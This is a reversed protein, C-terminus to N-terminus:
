EANTTPTHMESMKVFQLVHWVYQSRHLIDEWWQPGEGGLWALILSLVFMVGVMIKARLILWEVWCNEVKLPEECQGALQRRLISNNPIIDNYLKGANARPWNPRAFTEEEHACSDEVQPRGTWLWILLFYTVCVPLLLSFPLITWHIVPWEPWSSAHSSGIPPGPPIEQGNSMSYKTNCLLIFQAIWFHVSYACYDLYVIYQKNHKSNLM